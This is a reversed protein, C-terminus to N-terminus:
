VRGQEYDRHMRIEAQLAAPDFLGRAQRLLEARCDDLSRGTLPPLALPASRDGKHTNAEVAALQAKAKKKSDHEGLVKGDKAHVIWKGDEHTIYRKEDESLEDGEDPEDDEHAKAEARSVLDDPLTLGRSVLSLVSRAQEATLTESNGPVACLSYEGLSTSRYM